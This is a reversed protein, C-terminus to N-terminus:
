HNVEKKQEKRTENSRGRITLTKTNAHYLSWDIQPKDNAQHEGELMSQEPIEKEM